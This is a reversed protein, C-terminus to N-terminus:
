NYITFLSLSLWGALALWDKSLFLFCFTSNKKTTEYPTKKKNKSFLFLLFLFIM